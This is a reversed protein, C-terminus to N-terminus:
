SFNAPLFGVAFFTLVDSAGGLHVATTPPADAGAAAAPDDGVVVPGRDHPAATPPESTANEERDAPVLGLPKPAGTDGTDGAGGATGPANLECTSACMNGDSCGLVTGTRGRPECGLGATAAPSFADSLTHNLFSM